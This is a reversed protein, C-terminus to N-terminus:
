TNRGRGREIKKLKRHLTTERMGLREAAQMTDGNAQALTNLITQKESESM